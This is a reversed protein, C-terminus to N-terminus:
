CGLGTIALRGAARTSFNTSMIWPVGWFSKEQPVTIGVVGHDIQDLPINKNQLIKKAADAAFRMSHLHAFSAQWRLFPTSWYAGYPIRVEDLNM